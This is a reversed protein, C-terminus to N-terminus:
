IEAVGEDALFRTLLINSDPIYLQKRRANGLLPEIKFSGGKRHDLPAAFISPSDFEPFCMFDISGDTGALAVTHLDGIVAYTQIPKYNEEHGPSVARVPSSRRAIRRGGSRTRNFRPKM